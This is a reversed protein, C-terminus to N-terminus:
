DTKEGGFLTESLEYAMVLADERGPPKRYYDRREGVQVFGKALYLSIASFNSVRVDLFISDARDRVSDLCFELLRSGLGQGQYDPHVAINILEAAGAVCTFILFGLIEGSEEIVYASHHNLSEEFQGASWPSPAVQEEIIHLDVIHEARAPIIKQAAPSLSM